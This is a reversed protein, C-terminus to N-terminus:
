TVAGAAPWLWAPRAPAPSRLVRGSTACRDRGALCAVGAFGPGYDGGLGRLGRRAARCCVPAATPSATRAVAAAARVACAALDSTAPYRSEDWIAVPM